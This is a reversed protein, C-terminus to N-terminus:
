SAELQLRLPFWNSGEGGTRQGEGSGASIPLTMVVGNLHWSNSRLADKTTPVPQDQAM